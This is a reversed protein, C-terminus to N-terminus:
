WSPLAASHPESSPRTSSPGGAGGSRWTSRGGRCRAAPPGTPPWPTWPTRWPSFIRASLPIAEGRLGRPYGSGDWREQHAHVLRALEEMGPIKSLLQAGYEPHRRMEVWEEATLPGPKRLIADPVGIKGVDHAVAGLELERRLAPDHGQCYSDAIIEALCTTRCSHDGTGQDRLQLAALLPALAADEASDLNAIDIDTSGM